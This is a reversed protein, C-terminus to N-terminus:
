WFAKLKLYSETVESFHEQNEFSPKYSLMELLTSRNRALLDQICIVQEDSYRNDLCWFRIQVKALRILYRENANDVIVGIQLKKPDDGPSVKSKSAKASEFVRDILESISNCAIENM